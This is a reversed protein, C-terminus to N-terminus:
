EDRLAVMPDIRSARRAPLYGALAAVALMLLVAAALALPDDPGVGFLIRGLLHPNELKVVLNAGLLAIPIGLALGLGALTLIERMVMWQVAARGAGLAMRVGIENTRRAVVYSMLGYLGICVLFTALLSFLASLQAILQQNGISADVQQSLTAVNSVIVARNVQSVADRVEATIVAPSGTYRVSFNSFYQIHQQWPFYAAMEPSESLSVYKADKVVGVIEFDAAHAPDNGLGFRHGLASGTPFFRRALTENVIAVAASHERDNANFVRGAILPLGFTDFFETGIVNYLVDQSNAETRPVGEVTLDDSWEGQNFTFMSFSAARVGPLAQVRDEITQQLQNLRADQGLGAAYEDLYFTLVNRRDFGTNVRSLEILSRLFLGAGALLVLSLAIQAVILSRGLRHRASASALGRGEKLSPALSPRTARLAPALGFLLATALTTLLTFLLVRRDPAADVAFPGSSTSALRLLLLAGAKWALAVGLVAGAIALLSSETLLQTIIRSRSAGLAMRVAIERARAAGRALLLNAINACAILLVLAVVTMLIELPLSMQLRLQSLGRAVPTLDIQAHRLDQLEKPSPNASLYEGRIIQRFLTNTSAGARAISVGPKLRAILYLSQFDKDELGNWGPSIEKEMSLPIWFDPAQGVTVGFFGPQAVGIVTYTTNEIRITKGLVSPDRGQRTWWAYSAFAVPGAGPARDDNEDLTRGLIAHVGLVNFFSGSVLDARVLQPSGAAFTGHTGFEISDIATVGSFFDTKQAFERYWPYSFLDWSRNPMGDMSGVWLGHGFLVLEQPAAVPLNRLLVADLLSFIATNAGIGLALSLVAVATLLPSRRLMSRLGFRVDQLCHEVPQWGWADHSRERLAADNGFRRRAAARAAEPTLGARIHEHQRLDIHLQMEQALEADFRDHRFLWAIRRGLEGLRESLSAM